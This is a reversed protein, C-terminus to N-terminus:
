DARVDHGDGSEALAENVLDQPYGILALLRIANRSQVIGPRITYDFTLGKKGAHDTFYFPEYLEQV